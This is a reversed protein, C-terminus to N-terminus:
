KIITNEDIDKPIIYPSLVQEFVKRLEDAKEPYTYGLADIKQYEMKCLQDIYNIRIEHTEERWM